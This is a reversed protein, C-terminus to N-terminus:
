KQLHTRVREYAIISTAVAANLSETKGIMPIKVKIDAIDQIDKSVGKSENGIVIALKENFKLDYYFTDTDLSTVVIKYREKKLSKITELLEEKEQLINLRFIAGMTSRVVKLNYPDATGKSLILDRYGASDLTRIITGVNGPDQVDDLIFIVNDNKKSSNEKKVVSIIGQPTKTDSITMFVSKSVDLVKDQLKAKEIKRLIDEVSDDLLEKCIVIHLVKAYVFSEECMKIGEVIYEGNEDRYKKQLLSKIYKITSNDKSTIM